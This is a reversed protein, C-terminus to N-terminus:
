HFVFSIRCLSVNPSKFCMFIFYFRVEAERSSLKRVYERMAKAEEEQKEIELLEKRAIEVRQTAKELGDFLGRNEERSLLDGVRKDVLEALLDKAKATGSAKEASSCKVM